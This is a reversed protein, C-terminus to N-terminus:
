LSIGSDKMTESMLVVDDAYLLECLVGERAYETVVDVLLAFSFNVACIRSM